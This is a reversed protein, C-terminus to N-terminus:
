PTIRVERLSWEGGLMRFGLFVTVTRKESTGRVVYVRSMEAYAHDDAIQRAARLTFELEEADELYEALLRSAQGPKLSASVAIGPLHLRVTDSKSVLASVQHALWAERAREVAADLTSQASVPQATGLVLGAAAIAIRIRM